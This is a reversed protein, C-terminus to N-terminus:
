HHVRPSAAAKHAALIGAGFWKTIAAFRAKSIPRGESEAAVVEAALRDRIREAASAYADYRRIIALAAARSITFYTTKKVM